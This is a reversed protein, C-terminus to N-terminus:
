AARKTLVGFVQIATAGGIWVIAGLVHLFLWLEYWTM